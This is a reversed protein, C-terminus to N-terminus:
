SRTAVFVLDVSEALHFPALAIDGHFEVSAGLENLVSSIDAKQLPRLRVTARAAPTPSKKEHETVISFRIGDPLYEYERTIKVGEVSKINLIREKRALVREYNLCQAILVGGPRLVGMLHQLATRLEADTLLHPLSNGMVFVADFSRSWEAPIEHFAKQFVNIETHHAKANAAALRVMEESCDVATVHVGLQSLLISHFGSGCGADLADNIKYRRVLERFQPTEKEFRKEFGTMADYHPALLDYFISTSRDGTSSTDRTPSM